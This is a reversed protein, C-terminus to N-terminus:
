ARTSSGAETNSSADAATAVTAGADIAAGASVGAGMTADVGAAAAMVMDESTDPSLGPGVTATIAAGEIVAASLGSGTNAGAGEGTDPCTAIAASVGDESAVDIAAVM